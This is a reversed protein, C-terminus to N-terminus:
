VSVGRYSCNIGSSYHLALATQVAPSVMNQRGQHGSYHACDACHRQSSLGGPLHRSDRHEHGLPLRTHVVLASGALEHRRM